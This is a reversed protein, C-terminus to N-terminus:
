RSGHPLCAAHIQSKIQSRGAYLRQQDVGVLGDDGLGRGGQRYLAGMGAPGFLVGIFPDGRGGGGEAVEGFSLWQFRDPADAQRTLHVARRHDVGGVPATPGQIRQFSVRAWASAAARSASGRNRATVPLM